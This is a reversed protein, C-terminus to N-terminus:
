RGQLRRQFWPKLVTRDLVLWAIVLNLIIIVNMLMKGNVSFSPSTYNVFKDTNLLAGTSITTQMSDFTGASVLISAVGIAIIVGCLMWIGNRNSSPAIQVPYQDLKGMVQDTFNRSPQELRMTRLLQDASRLDNLVARLSENATLEEELRSRDAQRLTNDLYASLRDRQEQTIRKM